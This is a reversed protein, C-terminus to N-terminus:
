STGTVSRKKKKETYNKTMTKISARAVTRSINDVLLSSVVTQIAMKGVLTTQLKHIVKNLRNSM